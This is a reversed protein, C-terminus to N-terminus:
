VPASTRHHSVDDVEGSREAREADECLSDHKAAVDRAENLATVVVDFSDDLRELGYRWM